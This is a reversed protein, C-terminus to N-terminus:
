LDVTVPGDPVACCLLAHGNEPMDLPEEVYHVPGEVACLCTNCIGNRCSFAPQLGQAEALELLTRHAGDWVAERGSRTFRVITQGSAVLDQPVPQPAAPASPAPAHTLRRAPGFFEYAINEERVGLEILLDYMAQMFGPPGCLYAEYDGIPLLSRLVRADVLGEFQHAREAKDAPTPNALCTAIRICSSGMALVGLERRFPQVAGSECAHILTAPRRGDRALAHAMALLPTIGIGGALLIVPRSSGARLTFEGKPGLVDIEDGVQMAVHMHGSGLGGPHRKVSVRWHSRAEPDSSLSYNRPTFGGADDPVRFTLFQGPLFAPLASGDAPALHLSVVGACEQERRAVRLRRWSKGAGTM